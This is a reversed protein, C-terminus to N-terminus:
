QINKNIWESLLFVNFLLLYHAQIHDEPNKLLSQWEKPVLGAYTNGFDIIASCMKMRFGSHHLFWEKIPLGFGSKKRKAINELGEAILIEKIWSKPTTNILQKDSMERNLAVLPWDLYPARGEIGHSMCANDHIKLLDHVLYFSQDYGLAKKYNGGSKPYYDSLDKGLNEPVPNLAAFNIFTRDPNEHISALFKKQNRSIFPMNQLFHPLGRWLNPRKLYTKFAMHRNYGGFLEDAGVGSVLVKVRKKAERAIVWTLYSASDGVPQDLHSLYEDWTQLFFAPGIKIEQNGGGYKKTLNDAFTADSNSDRYSSEFGITFTPLPIGTEKYWIHYLLSSDAGGSLVM